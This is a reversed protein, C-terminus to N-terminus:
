GVRLWLDEPADEGLERRLAALIELRHMQIQQCWVSSDAAVEVVRGRLATPRCHRALEAGVAAEWREVIRVVAATESLGLEGLVRPVVSGLPTPQSGPRRRL